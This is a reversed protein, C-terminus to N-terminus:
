TSGLTVGYGVIVDVGKTRTDIANTFYRGGGVGPFGNAALFNRVTVDNFNGSLVVRDDIRIHYYDITLSLNRTPSLALKEAVGPMVAFLTNIAVYAFPNALWAMKLFTQPNVPQNLASSEPPHYKEKPPEPTAALVANHHKELWLLLLFQLHM